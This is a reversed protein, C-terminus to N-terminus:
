KLGSTAIGRVFYKQGLLFIVLIPLVSLVSGTMIMAFEADYLGIFSRLGLQITWLKNDTLYIFPGMYDNWTNVFTL